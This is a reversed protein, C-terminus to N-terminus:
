SNPAFFIRKQAEKLTAGPPPSIGWQDVRGPPWKWHEPGHSEYSDDVQEVEATYEIVVGFPDIFYNFLNNGPGHRGPGWQIPFGADKMRGGGRMVSEFDPMLFAIHNLADNDSIGIAITHHDSDCNMFAMIGTRDALRFGLAQELFAKTEDVAHSNLVVHTLRIPRDAVPADETRRADDHVVQFVRGHPDKFKLGIGGAPDRSLEHPAALITGGAATVREQIADLAARSRARLTVQRLQPVDGGRHLALLYTNSGTGRLYLTDDDRHAVELNWTRTYFDEAKALDPVFLAVSRLSEIWPSSM